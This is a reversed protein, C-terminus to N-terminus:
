SVHQISGNDVSFMKAVSDIHVHDRSTTTLFTQTTLRNLYEFLRKHRVPDLESSVDDLLFVPETCAEAKLCQIEAMKIALSMARQQGQSAFVKAPRGNLAITWDDRHPGEIMQQRALERTRANSMAHKYAAIINELPMEHGSGLVIEERMNANKYVPLCEFSQDFISAFVQRIHPAILKLYHYRADIIRCGLPLLQADYVDLLSQDPTESRLVASKQKQIKQYQELDLLYTPKLNFVMRDLATRRTLPPAQLFAVDTPVFLIARLHGLYDSARTCIMGDIFPRRVKPSLELSLRTTANDHHLIASLQASSADCEILDCLKDARFGKLFALTYIAELLNSKGQANAGYFVNFGESFELSLQSLNRFHLIDLSSIFM